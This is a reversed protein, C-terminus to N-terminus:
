SAVLLRRKRVLSLMCALLGLVIVLINLIRIRPSIVALDNHFVPFVSAMIGAIVTGIGAVLLARRSRGLTVITFLAGLLTIGSIVGLDVLLPDGGTDFAAYCRLGSVVAIIVALVVSLARRM